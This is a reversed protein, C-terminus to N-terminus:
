FPIEETKGIGAVKVVTAKLDAIAALIRDTDCSNDSTQRTNQAPGDGKVRPGKKDEIKYNIYKGNQETTYPIEVTQGVLGAWKGDFTTLKKGGAHVGYLVWARGSDSEGEKLVSVDDIRATM